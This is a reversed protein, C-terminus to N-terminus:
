QKGDLEIQKLAFNIKNQVSRIIDAETKAEMSWTDDEPETIDFSKSDKLLRVLADFMASDILLLERSSFEVRTTINKRAIKPLTQM